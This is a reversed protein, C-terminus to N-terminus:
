YHWGVIGNLRIGVLILYAVVVYFIQEFVFFDDIHKHLVDIHELGVKGCIMLYLADRQQWLWERHLGAFQGICELHATAHHCLVELLLNIRHISILCDTFYYFMFAVPAREYLVPALTLKKLATQM